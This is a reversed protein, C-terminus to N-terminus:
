GGTSVTWPWACLRLPAPALRSLKPGVAAFLCLPALAHRHPSPSGSVRVSARRSLRRAHTNQAPCMPLHELLRVCRADCARGRSLHVGCQLAGSTSCAVASTCCAKIGRM